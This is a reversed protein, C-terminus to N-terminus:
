YMVNLLAGALDVYCHMSHDVDLGKVEQWAKWKSFGKPDFLRNPSQNKCDGETAQKYYAYLALLDDQSPPRAWSVRKQYANEVGKCAERFRLSIPIGTDTSM